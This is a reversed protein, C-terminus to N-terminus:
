AATIFNWASDRKLEFAAVGRLDGARFTALLVAVGPLQSKWAM